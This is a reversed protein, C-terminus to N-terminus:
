LIACLFCGLANAFLRAQVPKPRTGCLFTGSPMSIDMYLQSNYLHKVTIFCNVTCKDALQLLLILIIQFKTLVSILNILVAIYEAHEAWSVLCTKFESQRYIVPKDTIILDHTCQINYCINFTMFSTTVSPFTEKIQNAVFLHFESQLIFVHQRIRCLCM